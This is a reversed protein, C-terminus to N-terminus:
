EYYFGGEMYSKIRRNEDSTGSIQIDADAVMIYGSLTNIVREECLPRGRHSLSEAVPRFFQAQIRPQQSIFMLSGNTGGSMLQPQAAKVTSYIGNAASSIAGGVDLSMAESVTDGVANIAAVATGLTDRVIQALQIPVGIQTTQNVIGYTGPAGSSDTGSVFLNGLGTVLDIWISGSINTYELLKTSDLPINGFPQVLLDYRSYPNLNLYNGRAAADPHKPIDATFNKIINTSARLRHASVTTTWWGFKLGVMLDGRVDAPPMPIWLCSVVYQFPNFLAKTLEQSIETDPIDLWNTDNDMLYEMLADFEINSMAYYSVAGISDSDSNIIGIIYTGSDINTVWNLPTINNVATQIDAKTPYLMDLVDGNYAVASRLIYQTSAGIQAKFSALVDCELHATWLGKSFYWDRVFYYRNFEAIYCYNTNFPHEERLTITPSIVGSEGVINCEFTFSTGDPIATSNERKPFNWFDVPFSM